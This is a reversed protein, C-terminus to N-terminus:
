ETEWLWPETFFPSTNSPLYRLYVWKESFWHRVWGISGSFFLKFKIKGVLYAIGFLKFNLWQGLLIIIPPDPYPYGITGHFWDQGLRGLRVKASVLTPCWNIVLANQQFLFMMWTTMQCSNKLSMMDKFRFFDHFQWKGDNGWGKVAIMWSQLSFSIHGFNSDLSKSSQCAGQRGHCIIVWRSWWIPHSVGGLLM